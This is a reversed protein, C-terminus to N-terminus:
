QELPIGKKIKGKILMKAFYERGYTNSKGKFRGNQYQELLVEALIKIDRNSWTNKLQPELWDEIEKIDM